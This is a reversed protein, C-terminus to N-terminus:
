EQEGQRTYYIDDIISDRHSLFYDLNARGEFLNDMVYWYCMEITDIEKKSLGEKNVEDHGRFILNEFYHGANTM